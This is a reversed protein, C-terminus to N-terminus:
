VDGDTSHMMVRQVQIPMFLPVSGPGPAASARAAIEYARQPSDVDVLWYGALFEKSEPFPGDTVTPTGDKSAHVVKTDEPGSLGETRVFEGADVLEKNFRRLFDMHAKVDQPPWLEIRKTKWDHLPFQMMLM